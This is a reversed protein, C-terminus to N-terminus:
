MANLKKNTFVTYSQSFKKGTTSSDSFFIHIHTYLLYGLSVYIRLLRPLLSLISVMKVPYGYTFIYDGM